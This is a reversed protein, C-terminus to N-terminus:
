YTARPVRGDHLAPQEVGRSSLREKPVPPNKTAEYKWILQYVSDGEISYYLACILNGIIFLVGFVGLTLLAMGELKGYSVGPIANVILLLTGIAYSVNERTHRWPRLFAGLILVTGLVTIIGRTYFGNEPALARLTLAVALKQFSPVIEWWFCEPSFADFLSSVWKPEQPAVIYLLEQATRSDTTDMQHLPDIHSSGPDLSLKAPKDIQDDRSEHALRNNGACRRISYVIFISPLLVVYFLIAPISLKVLPLAEEKTMWPRAQVYEMGTKAQSEFFIYEFTALASGFYFLRIWLLSLNCFLAWAHRDPSTTSSTSCPNINNIMLHKYTTSINTTDNITSPEDSADEDTDDTMTTPPTNTSTSSEEDENPHLLPSTTHEAADLSSEKVPRSRGCCCRNCCRMRRLGEALLIGLGTVLILGFPLLLKSILNLGPSAVFPFFCRLGVGDADGNLLKLWTKFYTGWHALEVAFQIFTITITLHASQLVDVCRHGIRKLLAMGEWQVRSQRRKSRLSFFAFAAIICSGLLVFAMAFGFSAGPTLVRSCKRCTTEGHFYCAGKGNIDCKCKSCLRGESGTKCQSSILKEFYSSSSAFNKREEEHGRVHMDSVSSTSSSLISSMDLHDFTIEVGECNSLSSLEDTLERVCSEVEYPYSSSALHELTVYIYYKRKISLRNASCHSTGQTSPCLFCQIPPVGFRTSDCECQDFSFLPEDYLFSYDTNNRFSLESCLLGPYLTSPAKTTTKGLQTDSYSPLSPFAPLNPNHTISLRRLDLDYFLKGLSTLDPKANLNNYSLDATKLSSMGSLSLSGYLENQHADLSVLYSLSSFDDSDFDFMNESIDLVSLFPVAAFDIFGTFQNNNLRLNTLSTLRYKPMPFTGSLLNYSLDLQQLYRRPPAVSDSEIIIPGRFQNNSLSVYDWNGLLFDNPISSTFRNYSLDLVSLENYRSLYLLDDLHGDLRNRSLDLQTLQSPMSPILGELNNDSLRLVSLSAPLPPITGELENFGLDLTNVSLMESLFGDLSGFLRNRSLDLTGFALSGYSSPITGRFDNRSLILELFSRLNPFEPLSGNLQNSGLDLSDLLNNHLFSSSITGQFSNKGLHLKQAHRMIAEPITGSLRNRQLFLKLGYQTFSPITGSLANGSLDLTALNSLKTASSPISGTLGCNPLVISLINSLNSISPPLSGLNSAGTILLTKLAPLNFLEVPLPGRLQTNDLTLYKLSQCKGISAPITGYLQRSSWNLNQLKVLEGITEPLHGKLSTDSMDVHTLNKLTWLGTDVDETLKTGRINFSELNKLQGMLLMKGYVPTDELSLHVLKTRASVLPAFEGAFNPMENLYLSELNLLKHFCFPGQIALNTRTLDLFTLNNLRCLASPIQGDWPIDGSGLRSGLELHELSALSGIVDPISGLLSTSVLALSRLNKLSGIWTPFSGALGFPPLRDVDFLHFCSLNTLQSIEPPLTGTLGNSDLISFPVCYPISSTLFPFISDGM